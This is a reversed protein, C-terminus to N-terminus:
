VMALAVVTSLVFGTVLSVTLCQAALEADLKELSAFTVVVFGMPAAGLLLLVGRDVGDLRLATALLAAVGLGIVPRSTALVLARGAGHM